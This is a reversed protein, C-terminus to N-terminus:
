EPKQFRASESRSGLGSDDDIQEVQKLGAALGGLRDTADQLAGADDLGAIGAGVGSAQQALDTYRDVGSQLRTVCETLSRQASERRASDPAGSGSKGDEQVAAVVGEYLVVQQAEHELQLRTREATRGLGPYLREIGPLASELLLHASHLQQMPRHALSGVAIGPALDPTGGGRATTLRAQAARLRRIRVTYTVSVAGGAMMLLASIGTITTGLNVADPDSPSLLLGVILVLLLVGLGLNVFHRRRLLDNLGPPDTSSEVRGAARRSLPRPRDAEPKDRSDYTVREAAM